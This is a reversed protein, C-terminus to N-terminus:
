DRLITIMRLIELAKICNGEIVVIEDLHNNDAMTLLTRGDELWPEGFDMDDHKDFYNRKFDGYDSFSEYVNGYKQHYKEVINM